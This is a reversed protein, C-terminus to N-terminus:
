TYCKEFGTIKSRCKPCNLSMWMNSNKLKDSCATCLLIDNCPKIIIERTHEMCIVCEGRIILNLKMQIISVVFKKIDEWFIYSWSDWSWIKRNVKWYGLNFLYIVENSVLGRAIEENHWMDKMVKNFTVMKSLMLMAYLGCILDFLYPLSFILM